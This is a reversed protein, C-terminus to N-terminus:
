SNNGVTKPNRSSKCRGYPGICTQPNQVFVQSKRTKHGNEHAIGWLKPTSPPKAHCTLGSVLKLTIVLFLNNKRKVAKKQSIAWLNPTRPPNVVITPGLIHKLTIVLFEDNKHNLTTKM